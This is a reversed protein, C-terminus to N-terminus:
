KKGRILEMVENEEIYREGVDDVYAKVYTTSNVIRRELFIGRCPKNLIIGVPIGITSEPNSMILTGERLWIPDGPLSAIM